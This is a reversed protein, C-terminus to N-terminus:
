RLNFISKIEKRIDSTTECIPCPKDWKSFSPNNKNESSNFRHMSLCELKPIQRPQSTSYINIKTVSGFWHKEFHNQPRTRGAISKGVYKCKNNVWFVYVYNEYHINDAFWSNFSEKKKDRGWGKSKTVHWRKRQSVTKDFEKNSVKRVLIEEAIDQLHNIARNIKSNTSKPPRGQIKKVVTRLWHTRDAFLENLKQNYQKYKAM